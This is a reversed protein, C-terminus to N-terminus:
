FQLIVAPTGASRSASGFRPWKLARPACNLWRFGFHSSQPFWKPPAPATLTQQVRRQLEEVAPLPGTLLGQADAWTRYRQITRRDIGTDRQVARDTDNARLHRVLERIDMLAIRRGAMHGGRLAFHAVASLIASRPLNTVLHRM